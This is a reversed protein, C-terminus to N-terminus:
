WGMRVPSPTGTVLNVYDVKIGAEALVRKIEHTSPISEDSDRHITLYM